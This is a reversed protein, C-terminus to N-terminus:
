WDIRKGGGTKSGQNTIVNEDNSRNDEKLFDIYFRTINQDSYPNYYLYTNQNATHNIDVRVRGYEDNAMGFDNKTFNITGSGGIFDLTKPNTPLPNGNATFNVDLTTSDVTNKYWDAPYVVSRQTLSYNNECITDGENCYVDLNLTVDTENKDTKADIPVLRAFYYTFNNDAINLGIDFLNGSDTLGITKLSSTANIDLSNGDSKITYPNEPETKGQSKKPEVGVRFRLANDASVGQEFTNADIDSINIDFFGNSSVITHEGFISFNNKDVAWYDLVLDTDREGMDFSLNTDFSVNSDAYYRYDYNTTRDGQKNLTEIDFGLQLYNDGLSKNRDEGFYAFNGTAYNVKTVNGDLKLALRYPVVNINLETSGGFACCYRGSADTGDGGYNALCDTSGNCDGAAQDVITWTTDNIDFSIVYQGVNSFSLNIDRQNIGDVFDLEKGFEGFTVNIDGLDAGVKTINKDISTALITKTYGSVNQDKAHNLAALRFTSSNNDGARLTTGNIEPTSALFDFGVPRVAFNNSSSLEGDDTSMKFIVDKYADSGLDVDLDMGGVPVSLGTRSWIVGGSSDTLNVDINDNSAVAGNGDTYYLELTFHRGAIKTYIRPNEATPIVSPEVIKVRGTAISDFETGYASRNKCMSIPVSEYQKGSGTSDDTYSVRYASTLTGASGIKMQYSFSENSDKEVLGGVTGHADEGLFLLIRSTNEDEEYMGCDSDNADTLITNACTSESQQMRMSAEEYRLSDDFGKEISVGKAPESALNAITVNIDLVDGVKPTVDTIPSGDITIVEDYCVDPVYLETSFAFVSAFYRESTSGLTVTAETQDTKVIGQGVIGQGNIGGGHDGVDYTHIDIGINNTCLPSRSGTVGTISSNFANNGSDSADRKLKTGDLSIYDGVMTVDGEGTFVLLSSNVPASSPTLFGSLKQDLKSIGNGIEQYGDFVTINKFTSNSDEYVVVISWAGFTGYTQLKEERTKLNAVTYVGEGNMIDTVDAMAQYPYYNSNPNSWYVNDTDAQVPTYASDGPAKLQIQVAESYEDSTAMGQWYLYAKKITAGSPMTLQANTSNFTSGNSDMDWYRTEIDGNDKNDPPCVTENSYQTCNGWWDNKVCKKEGLVTNGFILMDGNLNQNYRERFDGYHNGSFTPASEQLCIHDFYAVEENKNTRVNISMSLTGDATLTTELSNSHVGSSTPPTVVKGGANVTLTDSREWGGGTEYDFSLQINKKANASSFNYTKTATSNRNIKMRKNSLSVGSGSWGDLSSNFDDCMPLTDIGGGGCSSLPNNDKVGGWSKHEWYNGNWAIPNSWTAMSYAELTPINTFCNNTVTLNSPMQELLIGYGSDNNTSINNNVISGTNINGAFQLASKYGNGAKVFKNDAINIDSSSGGVYVTHDNQSSLISGTLEFAGPSNFYLIACGQGNITLDHFKVSSSNYVYFADKNKSNIIVDAPNGSQSRLILNNKNNTIQISENYTGDCIIIEDGANANNVASQIKTYAASPCQVRDDDVYLKTANIVSFFSM